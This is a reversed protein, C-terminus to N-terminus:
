QRPRAICPCVRSCVCTRLTVCPAAEAVARCSRVSFFFTFGRDAEECASQTIERGRKLSSNEALVCQAQMSPSGLRHETRRSVVPLTKPPLHQSACPHLPCTRGEVTDSCGTAHHPESSGAGSICLAPLGMIAHPLPTQSHQCCTRLTESAAAHTQRTDRSSRGTRWDCQHRAGHLAHSRTQASMTWVPLTCTTGRVPLQHYVAYTNSQRSSASM